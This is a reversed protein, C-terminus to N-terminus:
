GVPMTLSECVKRFKGMVEQMEEFSGITVQFDHHMNMGDGGQDMGAVRLQPFPSTLGPFMGREQLREILKAAEGIPSDKAFGEALLTLDSAPKVKEPDGIETLSVQLHVNFMKM